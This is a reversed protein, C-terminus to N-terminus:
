SVSLKHPPALTLIAQLYHRQLMKMAEDEKSVTDEVPKPDQYTHHNISSMSSSSPMSVSVPTPPVVVPSQFTVQSQSSSISSNMSSTTQGQMQQFSSFYSIIRYVFSPFIKLM